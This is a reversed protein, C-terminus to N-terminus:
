PLSVPPLRTPDDTQADSAALLGMQLLTLMKEGARLATEARVTAGKKRTLVEIASHLAEHAEDDTLLKESM